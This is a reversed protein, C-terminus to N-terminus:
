KLPTDSFAEKAAPRTVISEYWRNVAPFDALDVGHWGRRTLLPSMMVDALSYAAGALYPSAQLRTELMGYLERARAKHAAEAVPEKPIRGQAMFHLPVVGPVFTAAHWFMWQQCLARERPSSPLLKGSKEALYTLIAGSEYITLPGGPADNDTITPIVQNPNLKTYEPTKHEGKSIDIPVIRHPLGCEALMLIAKRGNGTKWVYADIM